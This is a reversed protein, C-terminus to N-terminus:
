QRLMFDRGVARLGIAATTVMVLLLICGAAALIEFNGEENLDLMLISLVRTRPGVVFLATSLERAASIFVLLWTGLLARKLLPAVIRWVTTTHPAGVIRAAEELDPSVARMAATGNAYAIPLFRAVFALVVIAATGNLAAPPPAYLGYFAMGLVIGPIVLPAMVLSGLGSAAPVLRRVVLYATAFGLVVCATAALGSYTLTHIISQQTIPYEFLLYRFNRLTLNPLSFGRGWAQAFAAQCITAGPLYVSLAGVLLAYGLLLWRWRGLRILRREAGKGTIAAFGRRHLVVRQAALFGATLLVLPLSYAAAVEVQVPYEFFNWLQTTLVSFHAPIAILAPTGFLAVSDLFTVIAGAGIAPLVLPLTIRFATRLGRAGLLSAADELESSVLELAGSTFVFIYPYAYVAVVFILGPFSFIDLIGTSAGTLTMWLRNLWGARPSGLLIWAVGGLYSPTVFTGLVTLRVLTKGPMDTRTVAWAIPLAFVLALGTAGVGLLLSNGLAQLHRARGFAVAYNGLTFGGAPDSFSAWLLKALPAVVLLLLIAAVAAALWGEVRFGAGIARPRRPPAHILETEL